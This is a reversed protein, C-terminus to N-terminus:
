KQEQEAVRRYFSQRTIGLLKSAQVVSIDKDKYQKYVKRFEREDMISKPRGYPRGTKTKGTQMVLDIGERQREKSCEREFQYMAAFVGLQLRGQPTTTDISEKLSIFGVDKHKLFNVINLLDLMNRALRSFSEVYVTDGKRVYELMKKLEPRNADKGSVKEEYVLDINYPKLAELQRGLNQEKTSVRCYALKQNVLGGGVWWKSYM